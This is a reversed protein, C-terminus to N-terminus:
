LYGMNGNVNDNEVAPMALRIHPIYSLMVAKRFGLCDNDIM